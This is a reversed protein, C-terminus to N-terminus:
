KSTGAAHRWAEGVQRETNEPDKSNDIVVDALRSKEALDMQADIRVRAQLATIGDRKMLRDLQTAPDVFVVWVEDALRDWGVEFLLPVDIVAVTEGSRRAEDLARLAAERIRPHTISELRQRAAEDRFVLDGLRARNIGGGPLLIDAGLWAVIDQWAPKGPEVVERAIIDTDVVVAGLQRLLKSVTSKGSAIGGTLGVVKM